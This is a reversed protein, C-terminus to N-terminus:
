RPKPIFDSDVIPCLYEEVGLEDTTWVPERRPRRGRTLAQCHNELFTYGLSPGCNYKTRHYSFDPSHVGASLTTLVPQSWVGDCKSPVREDRAQANAIQALLDKQVPCQGDREALLQDFSMLAALRPDERLLTQVSGLDSATADCLSATKRKVCGEYRWLSAM